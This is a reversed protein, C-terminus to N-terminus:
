PRLEGQLGYRLGEYSFEPIVSVRRGWAVAGGLRLRDGLPVLLAGQATWLHDIRQIPAGQRQYPRLYRAEELGFGGRGILGLPLAVTAMGGWRTWVYTNRLREDHEQLRSAAYSVDRDAQVTLLGFRFLPLDAAIALAPGRYAPAGGRPFERYGAM